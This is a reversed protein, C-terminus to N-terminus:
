VIRAFYLALLTRVIFGIRSVLPADFVPFHFIFRIKVSTPKGNEMCLAFLM